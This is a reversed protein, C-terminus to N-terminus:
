LIIDRENDWNAKLNVPQQIRLVKEPQKKQLYNGTDWIGNQNADELIQLYYDGPAFLKRYFTTSTLPYSAVIQNNSIFQLVPHKFKDLNQFNIKISAYDREHKTIFSLTDNKELHNGSSDSAFHQMVFLKYRFNEKWDTEIKVSQHLTDAFDIQFPIPTFLTDTLAIQSSDFHIPANFNLIIPQLIDQPGNGFSTTYKLAAVKTKKGSTSTKPTEKEEQYAWLAVPITNSNVEIAIDAFAFLAKPDNYMRQGSEDKLAFVHYTGASLNKFHFKGASDLRTVYKPRTKFVASDKLNDYLMVILTSDIKGTEALTVNGTFELSDIYDGTSFIYTFNGYPNNENIDQIANGLEIRYTTNPKLTDRLKITVQRFKYNFNPMIQPTPNVLAYKDIDKLEIYEDFNLTITKEKFHTSSNAPIANLLVPALTDRAGGTPSGIQACSSGMLSLFYVISLFIFGSIVTRFKM